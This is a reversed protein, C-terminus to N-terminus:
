NRHLYVCFNLCDVMKTFLKNYKPSKKGRGDFNAPIQTPSPNNERAAAQSHRAVKKRAKAPRLQPERLGASQM